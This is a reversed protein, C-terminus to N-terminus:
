AIKTLPLFSEVMVAWRDNYLQYINLM